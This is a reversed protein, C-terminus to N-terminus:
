KLGLAGNCYKALRLFFDPFTKEVCRPNLITMWPKSDGLLDASGLVAFSMAVRHDRYTEIEVGRRAAEELGERSPLIRLSDETEEVGQNLRRLGAAMAEIRDCEQARTHAIGEISVPFPLLPAVAALTLFTDSFANFDYHRETKGGIGADGWNAWCEVSSGKWQLNMGLDQLVETFRLDGQWGNQVLGELRIRGGVAVPLAFFYSAATADPEIKFSGGEPVEYAKADVEFNQGSQDSSVTAGFARMLRLTMEVFPRSVTEKLLNITIPRGAMPASLLLSSLIQSSQSADVGWLGLEVPKSRLLLPFHGVEGLWDVSAGLSELAAVLGSIPRKRMAETGDFRYAGRGCVALAGPLFRAVTGANGVYLDVEGAHQLRNGHVLCTEGARDVEVRCGLVGLCEILIETDESLLIGELRVPGECMAAVLLARNTLSKSGPLEGVVPNTARFPVVQFRDGLGQGVLPHKMDYGM